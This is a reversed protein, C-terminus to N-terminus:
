MDWDAKAGGRFADIAELMAGVLQRETANLEPRWIELLLIVRTEGSRNWAEHEITDDFVWAKGEEWTRTENGVRLQCDPPVVLPLHVILRTNIIGTHAPIHAGPRLLSFLVSPSRGPIRPLPVQELAAMTAPCRAANAENLKGDEWLYFASWDRNNHMGGRNLQPRNPDPKIYPQFAEHDKLLQLVEARIAPTAAELQKLWPFDANDFYQVQPLGPFYYLRPQQLYIQKKGLLLDLSQRFRAAAPADDLGAQALKDLLHGEFSGAAKDVLQQARQVLAQLTGPLPKPAARLIARAYNAAGHLDGTAGLVEAKLALVQLNSPEQDLARDLAALAAAHDGMGVCAHALGFYVSADGHGAAALQEFCPRASAADGRRLAAMGADALAAVDIM